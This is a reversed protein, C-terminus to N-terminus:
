NNKRGKENKGPRKGTYIYQLVADIASFEQEVAGDVEDLILM